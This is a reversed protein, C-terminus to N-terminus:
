APSSRTRCPSCANGNGVMKGYVTLLRKGIYPNKEFFEAFFAHQCSCAKWLIRCAQAPVESYLRRRGDLRECPM